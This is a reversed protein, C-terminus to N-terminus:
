KFGPPETTCSTRQTQPIAIAENGRPRVTDYDTKRSALAARAATLSVFITDNILEKRFKGDFSKIFADQNPKDSAIYDWGITM